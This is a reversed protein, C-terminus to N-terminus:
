SKNSSSGGMIVAFARKFVFSGKKMYTIYAGPTTLMTTWMFISAVIPQYKCLLLAFFVASIQFPFNSKAVLTPKPFEVDPEVKRLRLFMYIGVIVTCDVFVVMAVFTLWFRHSCSRDPKNHRLFGM